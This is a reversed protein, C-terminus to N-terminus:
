ARKGVAVGAPRLTEDGIVYGEQMVDIVKGDQAPDTVPVVAIAEHRNPDFPEGRAPAHKVGFKEFSALLQRRVLEVGAVLEGVQTHTKAAAIARDLNDVVSLFSELLKRTRQELDKASAGAARRQVAEIEAHAQDARENAKRLEEDKKAVLATLQEIEDELISDYQEADTATGLDGLSDELEKAAAVADFEAPKDGAV